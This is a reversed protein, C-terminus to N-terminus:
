RWKSASAATGGPANTPRSAPRKPAASPRRPARPASSRGDSLRRTFWDILPVIGLATGAVLLWLVFTASFWKGFFGEAFGFIYGTLTLAIVWSLFALWAARRVLPHATFRAFLAAVIM